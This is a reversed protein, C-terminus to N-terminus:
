QVEEVRAGDAPPMSLGVLVDEDAACGRCCRSREGGLAEGLTVARSRALGQADRVVVLSLGGTAAGGAAAGGGGPAERHRGLGPGTAGTAVEVDGLDLKVLFTHATPDAGPSM